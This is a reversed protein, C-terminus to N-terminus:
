QIPILPCNSCLKSKDKSREPHICAIKVFKIKSVNRDVKGYAVIEASERYVFVPTNIQIDNADPSVVTDPHLRAELTVPGSPIDLKVTYGSAAEIPMSTIVGKCITLQSATRRSYSVLRFM